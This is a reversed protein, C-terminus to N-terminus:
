RPRRRCAGRSSSRCDSWRGPGSTIGRRFVGSSRGSLVSSTRWRSRASLFSAFHSVPLKKERECCCHEEQAAAVSDDSVLRQPEPLACRHFEAAAGRDPERRRRRDAANGHVQRDGCQVGRGIGEAGEAQDGASGVGARFEVGPVEEEQREPDPCQRDPHPVETEAPPSNGPVKRFRSRGTPSAAVPVSAPVM